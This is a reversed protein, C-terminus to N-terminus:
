ELQALDLSYANGDAKLKADLFEIGADIQNSKTWKEQAIQKAFDAKYSQHLPKLKTALAYLLAGMEKACETVGSMDLVENLSATTKKNKLMNTVTEAKLGIAGFRAAAADEAM